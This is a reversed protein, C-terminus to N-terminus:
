RIDIIANSLVATGREKCVADIIVSGKTRWMRVEITEGPYLVGAFRARYRAVASVDGGLVADM